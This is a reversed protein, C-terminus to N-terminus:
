YFRCRKKASNIIDEAESKICQAEQHAQQIINAAEDAQQKNKANHIVTLVLTGFAIGIIICVIGIVFQLLM